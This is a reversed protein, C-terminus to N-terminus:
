VCSWVGTAQSVIRASDVRYIGSRCVMVGLGKDDCSLWCMPKSTQHLERCMQVDVPLVCMQRVLPNNSPHVCQDGVKVVRDAGATAVYGGSADIAM